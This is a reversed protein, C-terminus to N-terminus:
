HVRIGKIAQSFDLVLCCKSMRSPPVAWERSQGPGRSLQGGSPSSRVQKLPAGSANHSPMSLMYRSLRDGLCATPLAGCTQQATGWVRQPFLVMGPGLQGGSVNHSCCWVQNLPGGSVNYFLQGLVGPMLGQQPHVFTRLGAATAAEASRVLVEEPSTQQEEVATESVGLADEAVSVSETLDGNSEEKHAAADEAEKLSAQVALMRLILQM